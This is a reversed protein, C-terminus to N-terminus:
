ESTMRMPEALDVIVNGRLVEGAHYVAYPHDFVIYFEQLKGM